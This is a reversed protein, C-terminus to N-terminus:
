ATCSMLLKRSLFIQWFIMYFAFVVLSGASGAAGLASVLM